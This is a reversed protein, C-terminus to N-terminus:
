RGTEIAEAALISKPLLKILLQEKRYKLSCQVHFPLIAESLHCAQYFGWSGWALSTKSSCLIGLHSIRTSTQELPPQCEESIQALYIRGQRQGRNQWPVWPCLWATKLSTIGQKTGGPAHFIDSSWRLSGAWGQGARSHPCLLWLLQELDRCPCSQACALSPEPFGLELFAQSLTAEIQEQPLRCHGCGQLVCQGPQPQGWLM